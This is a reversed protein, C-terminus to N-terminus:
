FDEVAGPKTVPRPALDKLKIRDNTFQQEWIVPDERVKGNLTLDLSSRGHLFCRVVPIEAGVIKEQQLKWERMTIETEGWFSQVAVDIRSPNFEYHYVNEIKPDKMGPPTQGNRLSVPCILDNTNALYNPVLDSLWNPLEKHDKRYAEVATSVKLLHEKCKTLDDKKTLAAKDEINTQSADAKVAPEDPRVPQTSLVMAFLVANLIRRPADAWHYNLPTKM